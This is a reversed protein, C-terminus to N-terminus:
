AAGEVADYVASSVQAILSTAEGYDLGQTMVVLVYPRTAYVIGGDHIAGEVTGTKHAVTVGDPVGADLGTDVTQAELFSRALTSADGDVLTGTAIMALLRAADDSSTSNLVPDTGTTDMMTHHLSTGALGLRAAEENIADMGLENILLNTAVNDSESIMHSALGELTYTTGPEEYQLTGSGDVIDGATLEVTQQLDIQGSAAEDLLCALVTLKIMSASPRVTDGNLSISGAPLTTDEDALAQATDADLAVFSVSLQDGWQRAIPELVDRVAYSLRLSSVGSLDLPRAGSIGTRGAASTASGDAAASVDWRAAGSTGLPDGIGCSALATVGGLLTLAGALTACAAPLAARTLWRRPRRSTRSDPRAEDPGHTQHPSTDSM